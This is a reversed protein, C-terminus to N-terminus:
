DYSKTTNLYTTSTEDIFYKTMKENFEFSDIIINSEYHHYLARYDLNTTGIISLEEDFMYAKTHMFYNDPILVNVGLSTYKDAYLKTAEFALFKDKKGSVIINIEVGREIAHLFADHIIVPPALYPTFINIIRKSNNVMEIFKNLFNTDNSNPNDIMLLTKM